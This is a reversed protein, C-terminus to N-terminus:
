KKVTKALLRQFIEERHVSVEPPAKVGLRVHTGQISLISVMINHNIRISKGAERTLVLM